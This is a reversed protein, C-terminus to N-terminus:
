VSITARIFEELKAFETHHVTLLENGKVDTVTAYEKSRGNYHVYCKLKEGVYIVHRGVDVKVGRQILDKMLAVAPKYFLSSSWGGNEEYQELSKSLKRM